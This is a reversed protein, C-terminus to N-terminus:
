VREAATPRGTLKRLVEELYDYDIPKVLYESAGVARAVSRCKPHSFGSVLISPMESYGDIKRLLSFNLLGFGFEFGIEMLILDIRTGPDPHILDATSEIEAVDYDWMELVSRFVSRTEEAESILLVSPRQHGNGNHRGNTPSQVKM